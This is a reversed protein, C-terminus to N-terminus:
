KMKLFEVLRKGNQINRKAINENALELFSAFRTKRQDIYGGFNGLDNRITVVKEPGWWKTHSYGKGKKAYGTPLDYGTGGLQVYCRVWGGAMSGIADVAIATYDDIKSQAAGLPGVVHFKRGNLRGYKDRGMKHYKTNPSGIINIDKGDYPMWDGMGGRAFAKHIVEWNGDDYAKQLRKSKFEFNYATVAPWQKALVLEGFPITELPSFIANIDDKINKEAELRGNKLPPTELAAKASVIGAENRMILVLDRDMQKRFKELTDMSQKLTKKLLPEDLIYTPPSSPGGGGLLGRLIFRFIQLM